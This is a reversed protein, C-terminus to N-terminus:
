YWICNFNNGLVTNDAATTGGLYWICILCNSITNNIFTNGSTNSGIAASYYQGDAYGLCDTITSDQMDVTSSSATYIAFDWHDSGAGKGTYQLNRITMSSSNNASCGVVEINQMVTDTVSVHADYVYIGNGGFQQYRINRIECNKISGVTGSYFRLANWIKKGSGDLILNEFEVSVTSWNKSVYILSNIDRLSKIIPRNSGSEGVLTISKSIGLNETYTGAAINIVDGNVAKTVAASITRLANVGPGNGSNADDGNPDVYLYNSPYRFVSITEEYIITGNESKGIVVIESEGLAVPLTMSFTNGSINAQVGNVEVSAFYTYVTGTVEVSNTNIVQGDTIGSLELPEPYDATGDPLNSPTSNLATLALGTLYPDDNWSGNDSQQSVIFGVAANRKGQDLNNTWMIVACTNILGNGFSGDANQNDTIWTTDFVSAGYHNNRVNYVMSSVFLDPDHGPIWSFQDSVNSELDPYDKLLLYSDNNSAVHRTTRDAAVAGLATSVADKTLRTKLGWGLIQTGNIQSQAILRNVMEDVNQGYDSLTQIKRALYDNNDAFNGRLYFLAHHTGADNKSMLNYANLVQSTALIRLRRKDGWYGQENQVSELWAMAKSYPDSDGTTVGDIYIPMLTSITGETGNADVATVGYYYTVGSVITSDYYYTTSSLTGTIRLSSPPPYSGNQSQNLTDVDFPSLCRYVHYGAVQGSAAGWSLEVQQDTANYIASTSTVADPIAGLLYIESKTDEINGVADVAFFQLNMSRDILINEIPATGSVTNDAGAFPPYNDTSYYITAEETCSLTVTFPGSYTGGPQSVTTVPPTNDVEFEIIVETTNGAMDELVVTYQYTRDEPNAINLSITQSNYPGGFTVQDTIDNGNEDFVKVSYIGSDADGYIIRMELPSGDNPVVDGDAPYSSIVEPPTTDQPVTPDYWFGAALKAGKKVHFGPKLAIGGAGARMTADGGSEVVFSPGATISNRATYTKVEGNQITEYRLLLDDIGAFSASFMFLVMGFALIFLKSTKITTKM